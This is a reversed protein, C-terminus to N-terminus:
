LTTQFRKIAEEVIKQFVPLSETDLWEHPSHQDGSTPRSVIIPIGLSTFFRGDNSGCHKNFTPQTGLVETACQVYTQVFPNEEDTHILEGSVRVSVQALDGVVEEVKAMLEDVNTEETFRIDLDCMAEGPIQNAAEGGHIVGINCTHYWYDDATAKHPIFARIKEYAVLLRDIANEGLWPRSGHGTKGHATLRILLIGKNMLVIDDPAQGGDPVIAVQCRYGVESLLYNVGNFGGVEEDTTLMLAMNPRTEQEAINKLIQMMVVCESKMDCVGRGFMKSGEYRPEFLDDSAPVVDLHGVLMIDPAFTEQTSIVMSPKGGSEYRKIILNPTDAFFSEVYSMIRMLEEPQDATTKMRVLDETMSIISNM